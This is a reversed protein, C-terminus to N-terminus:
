EETEGGWLRRMFTVEDGGATSADQGVFFGGRYRREDAIVGAALCGDVRGTLDTDWGVVPMDDPLSPDALIRRLDGVTLAGSM